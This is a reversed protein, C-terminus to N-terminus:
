ARSEGTDRELTTAFPRSGEDSLRAALVVKAERSIPHHAHLDFLTSVDADARDIGRGALLEVGIGLNVRGPAVPHVGLHRPPEQALRQVVAREHDLGPVGRGHDGAGDVRACAVSFAYRTHDDRGYDEISCGAVGTADLRKINDAVAEPADAFGNEFDANLPITTAAALQRCHQLKEELSVEGDARGLTYAFGSSTTALAKFGLGQLLKASGVDWPNPIVWASSARHLEALRECKQLQSTM